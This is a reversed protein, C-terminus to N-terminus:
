KYQVRRETRERVAEFFFNVRVRERTEEAELLGSSPPQATYTAPVLIFTTTTTHARIDADRVRGVLVFCAAGDGAAAAAAAAIFVFVPTPPCVAPRLSRIFAFAFRASAAFSVRAPATITRDAAEVAVRCRLKLLATGNGIRRRPPPQRATATATGRRRLKTSGVRAETIVFAGSSYGFFRAREKCSVGSFSPWDQRSPNRLGEQSFWRQCRRSFVASARESARDM